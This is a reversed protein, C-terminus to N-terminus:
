TEEVSFCRLPLRSDDQNASSTTNQVLFCDTEEKERAEEFYAACLLSILHLAPNWNSM